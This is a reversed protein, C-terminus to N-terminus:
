LAYAYVGSWRNCYTSHAWSSPIGWSYRFLAGGCPMGWSRDSDPDRRPQFPFRLNITGDPGPRDMRFPHDSSETLLFITDDSLSRPAHAPGQGIKLGVLWFSEGHGCTNRNICHTTVVRGFCDHFPCSQRYTLSLSLQLQKQGTDFIM